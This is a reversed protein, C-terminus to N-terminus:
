KGGVLVLRLADGAGVLSEGAIFGACITVLFRESWKPFLKGLALAAVGGIFMSISNNAPIVFALGLSAASPVWIRWRQPLTKELIPLVVGAIAAWFMATTAGAPLTNIGNRFVEAVSKWMAVAPAPWEDTLLMTAPDPVLVLYFASAVLSGAFAGIMQGIVQKRAIAGLLYGCKLDHMLDACQAAAGATVSASMLNAAAQKPAIVAFALQTVKGMAGVPTVNTEGSVRSAVVALAFSLLVALIAAWWSIGFFWTQLIVAAVLAAGLAALFWSRSVEGTDEKAKGSDPTRRFSRLISPMSFSFSVLSSVVMLTVGPWLLWEGIPGRAAPLTGSNVLQTAIIGWSIIAGLLLSVCARIGVLGGVAVMLLTPDLAFTYTAAPAGNLTAGLDSRAVWKKIEAFKVLGSVVAAVALVSVRKLAESGTNYIEKLMEACAIGGPFPLQDRIVMQRRLGMAVAIGVMCVTGMWLSLQWWELRTGELLTLAPIASVLGASSVSGAASCSAQNINNELRNMMRVRGVSLKNLVSWFAFAILIGTISMNLGWGIKLGTYVNCISLTGGLLLGTGMAKWSLQPSVFDVPPIDPQAASGAAATADSM